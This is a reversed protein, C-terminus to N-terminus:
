WGTPPLGRFAAHCESCTTAVAGLLTAVGRVDGRRAHEELTTAQTRLHIALELLSTRGADDLPLESATEPIADAARAMARAADAIERLRRRRMAPVDLEQPLRDPRLRDLEAMTAKIRAHRAAHHGPAPLAPASAPARSLLRCGAVLMAAVIVGAVARQGRAAM